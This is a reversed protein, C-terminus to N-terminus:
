NDKLSAEARLIADLAKKALKGELELIESYEPMKLRWRALADEAERIIMDETPFLTEWIGIGNKDKLNFTNIYLLKTKGGRLKEVNVYDYIKSRIKNAADCLPSASPGDSEAPTPGVPWYPVLVGTAPQGLITWMTSLEASEGPLVGQIVAFSVTSNNCISFKHPFYGFGGDKVSGEFPIAVPNSLSDSFDRVQIRVIEKFDIKDTAFFEKDLEVARKYREIGGHGGGNIAFNTKVIYGDETDGADYRWYKTAATEFFAAGGGADIVGYNTNTKRGAANTEKLYTEFEDVTACMGLVTTMLTGNDASNRGLDTSLTNIIAFGKENVGMWSWQVSDASIVAIFKYKGSTNWIVENDLDDADRSKWLLPRGDTTARGAAVGATCEEIGTQAFVSASYFFSLLITLVFIQNFKKM